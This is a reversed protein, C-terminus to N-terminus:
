TDSRSQRRGAVVLASGGTALGCPALLLGTGARLRVHM